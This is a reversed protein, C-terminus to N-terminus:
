LSKIIKFKNYKKHLFFIIIVMIFITSLSNNNNFSILTVKNIYNFFLRLLSKFDLFTSM